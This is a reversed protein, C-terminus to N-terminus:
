LTGELEKSVRQASINKGWTNAIEILENQVHLNTMRRCDVNIEACLKEGERSSWEVPWWEISKAAPILRLLLTFYQEGDSEVNQGKSLRLHEGNKELLIPSSLGKRLVLRCSSELTKLLPADDTSIAKTINQRLHEAGNKAGALDKM